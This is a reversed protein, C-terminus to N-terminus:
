VVDGKWQYWLWGIGVGVLGGALGSFWHWPHPQGDLLIRALIYGAIGMGFAWIYVVVPWDRGIFKTDQRRSQTLKAM